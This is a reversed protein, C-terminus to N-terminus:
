LWLYRLLYYFRGKKKQLNKRFIPYFGLIAEDEEQTPSLHGYRARVYVGMMDPLSLTGETYNDLTAGIAEAYERETQSKSRGFALRGFRKMYYRCLLIVRDRAPLANANKLTRKWLYRKILPISVAAACIIIVLVIVFNRVREAFSVASEEVEEGNGGGTNDGMSEEEEEPRAEEPEEQAETDEEENMQNTLVNDWLTRATLEENLVTYQDTVGVQELINWRIIRSIFAMDYTPPSITRIVGVYVGGALVLSILAVVLGNRFQRGFQPSFTSGSLSRARYLKLVYLVPCCCVFCVVWWVRVEYHLFDMAGIFTSGAILLVWVGIRGRTVLYVVLPVIIAAFGYIYISTDSGEVDVIDINRVNLCLFAIAAAAAVAIPFVIMGLRNYGTLFALVVVIASIVLALGFNDAFRDPVYFGQSFVVTIVASAVACLIMEWVREKLYDRM